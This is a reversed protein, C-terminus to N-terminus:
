NSIFEIRISNIIIGILFNTINLYLDILSKLDKCNIIKIKNSNLNLVELQNLIKLIM